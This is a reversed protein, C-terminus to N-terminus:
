KIKLHIPIYKDAKAGVITKSDHDAECRKNLVDITRHRRLHKRFNPSVMKGSDGGFRNVTQM